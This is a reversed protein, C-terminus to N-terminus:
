NFLGKIKDQVGKASERLYDSTLKAKVGEVITNVQEEPIAINVLETVAKIPDRKFEAAFDKDDKIKKVIEEIKEKIKDM